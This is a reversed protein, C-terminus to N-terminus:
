VLLLTVFVGLLETSFDEDGLFSFVIVLELVPVVTSCPVLVLEFLSELLEVEPM